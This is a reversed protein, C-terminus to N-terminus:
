QLVRTAPKVGKRIENKWRSTRLSQTPCHPALLAPSSFHKQASLFPVGLDNLNQYRDSVSVVHLLLWQGGSLTTFVVPCVTRLYIIELCQGNWHLITFTLAPVFSISLFSGQSLVGSALNLFCKLSENMCFGVDSVKLSYFVPSQSRNFNQKVCSVSESECSM